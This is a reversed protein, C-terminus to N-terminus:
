DNAADEVETFDSTTPESDFVSQALVQQGQVVAELTAIRQELEGTELLKAAETM